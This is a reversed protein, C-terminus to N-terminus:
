THDPFKEQGNLTRVLVTIMSIYLIHVEAKAESKLGLTKQKGSNSSLSLIDTFCCSKRRRQDDRVEDREVLGKSREEIRELARRKERERSERRIAAVLM